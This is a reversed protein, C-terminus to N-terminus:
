YIHHQKTTCIHLSSIESAQLFGWSFKVQNPMAVGTVRVECWESNKLHLWFQIIISIQGDDAVAPM